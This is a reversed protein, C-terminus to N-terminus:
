DEEATAKHAQEHCWRIVTDDWTRRPMDNLISQRWSEAKPRDHLERVDTKSSTEASRRVREGSPTTFNVWWISGRKRIGM